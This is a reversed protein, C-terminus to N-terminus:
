VFLRKLYRKKKDLIGIVTCKYYKNIEGINFKFNLIELTQKNKAFVVLGTTNRDLRHCPYPFDKDLNNYKNQLFQTLSNETNNIVEIEKPKNIVIINNDEYIINLDLQKFLFKDDIFVEIIDDTYVNINEKIRTGNVKIDKKRLTKYVFSSSLGNFENLLVNIIKKNNYKEKIILKKM